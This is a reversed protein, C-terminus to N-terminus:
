LAKIELTGERRCAARPSLSNQRRLMETEPGFVAAELKPLSLPASTERSKWPPGCPIRSASGGGPLRTTTIKARLSFFSPTRGGHRATLSHSM